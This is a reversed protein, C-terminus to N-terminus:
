SAKPIRVGSAVIEYVVGATLKNSGDALDSNFHAAQKENMTKKILSGNLTVIKNSSDTPVFFSYDKFAVRLTHKGEQAIFFCGKKQCVKSIRTELAFPKDLYKEGNVALESLSVKDLDAILTEGFTESVDDSVVAESLRIPEKAEAAKVFLISGSLLLVIFLSCYSIRM